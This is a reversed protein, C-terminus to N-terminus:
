AGGDEHGVFWRSRIGGRGYRCLWRRASGLRVIKSHVGEGVLDNWTPHVVVEERSSRGCVQRARPAYFTPVYLCTGGRPQFRRPRPGLLDSEMLLAFAVARRTLMSRLM